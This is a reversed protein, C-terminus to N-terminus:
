RRAAAPDGTLLGAIALAGAIGGVLLAGRRNRWRGLVGTRAPAPATM